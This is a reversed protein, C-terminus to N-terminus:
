NLPVLTRHLQHGAVVHPHHGPPHPVQEYEHLEPLLIVLIIILLERSLKLSLSLAPKEQEAM